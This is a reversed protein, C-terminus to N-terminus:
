RIFGAKRLGDVGQKGCRRYKTHADLAETWLCEGSAFVNRLIYRDKDTKVQTWLLLVNKGLKNEATLPRRLTGKEYDLYDSEAFLTQKYEATMQVFQRPTFHGMRLVGTFMPVTALAHAVSDIPFGPLTTQTLDVIFVEQLLGPDGVGYPVTDAFQTFDVSTDSFDYKDRLYYRRLKTKLDNSWGLAKLVEPPHFDPHAIVSDILHDMVFYWDAVRQRTLLPVADSDAADVEAYLGPVGATLRSRPCSAGVSMPTPQIASSNVACVFGLLVSWM